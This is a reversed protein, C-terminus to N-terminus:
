NQLELIFPSPKSFAQGILRAVLKTDTESVPLPTGHVISEYFARYLKGYDGVPSPIRVDQLHGHDDHYLLRGFDDESDEGFGEEGPFYNAKLDLEQRDIHQKIFTGNTGHLMWRPAGALAIHSTRVSVKLDPYYFDLAFTDDPNGALRVTRIDYGVRDPKGFLAVIQDITHVGLGYLAGNEPRPIAPAADPRYLDFHSVVEVLRGLKGSRIVQEVVQFDSDFRRNQYALLKVGQRDAEEFLRHTEHETVTFPKEVLVHKGHQLAQLAYSFHTAPPTNIVVVQLEPDNLMTDLDTTFRVHPLRSAYTTELEPKAKRNYIWTIDFHDEIMVYPLHYRTTSKGFGIFGIQLRM